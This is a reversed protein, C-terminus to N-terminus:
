GHAEAIEKVPQYQKLGSIPKKVAIVGPSLHLAWWDKAAVQNWPKAFPLAKLAEILDAPNQFRDRPNKELCKMIIGDMEPLIALETVESPRKPITKVHDVLLDVSDSDAFPPHGTLAWYGVAGLMYLDTRGDVGAKSQILEPASYRPTGMFAGAQTLAAEEPKRFEKALGFDLVKVFDYLGGRQTVFINSPKIDRHIIGKEHAEILSGCVQNLLYAVRPSPLPGFKEVLKQLDLGELMEMAYYFTRDACHGYDFITITNPHTLSASLKVEKEFRALATGANEGKPVMVKIATPRTLFAHSAEFVVGMGGRGIESKLIYNGLRRARSLDFRFNYLIKTIMISIGSLILVDITQAIAANRFIQFGGAAQWIQQIAPIYRYALIQGLPFSLIAMSGAWIQVWVPVPVFAAHAFLLMAYPYVGPLRPSFVAFSFTVMLINFTVVALDLLQLARSSWNRAHIVLVGLLFSAAHALFQLDYYPAFPSWDINGHRRFVYRDVLYVTLSTVFGIWFFLLLRGRLVGAPVTSPSSGRTPQLYKM